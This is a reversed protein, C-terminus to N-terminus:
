PTEAPSPRFRVAAGGEELLLTETVGTLEALQAALAENAPRRPDFLLYGVGRTKELLTQSNEFPPPLPLAPRRTALMTKGPWESMTMATGAEAGADEIEASFALILQDVPPLRNQAIAHHHAKQAQMFLTSLVFVALLVIGRQGAFGKGGLARNLAIIHPVGLYLAVALCLMAWAGDACFVGAIVALLLMRPLLEKPLSRREAILLYVLFAALAIAALLPLTEGRSERGLVAAALSTLPNALWDLTPWGMRLTLVFIVALAIGIYVHRQHRADIPEVKWQWLLAIPYALAAPHISVAIMIWLLQLFFWGGLPRQVRRYTRDIWAGVAFALLLYPGAGLADIQAITAPAILLLGTAILATESGHRHRSWRYLMAAAAATILAAYVKAAPMSGPWYAGLPIQLLGRLDPLGLIVVTSAIREGVSWVLLLARAASEEVGHADLRLLGFGFAAAGWLALVAVGWYGTWIRHLWEKGRVVLDM